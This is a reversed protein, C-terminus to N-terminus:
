ERGERRTRSIADCASKRSGIRSERNGDWGHNGVAALQM